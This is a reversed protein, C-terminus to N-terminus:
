NKTFHTREREREKVRERDGDGKKQKGEGAGEKGGKNLRNVMIIQRGDYGVMM